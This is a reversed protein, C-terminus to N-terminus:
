GHRGEQLAKQREDAARQWETGAPTIVYLNLHKTRRQVTGAKRALGRDALSALCNGVVALSGLYGLDKTTLGEPHRSLAALAQKQNPGLMGPATM